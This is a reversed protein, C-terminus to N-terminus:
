ASRNSLDSVSEEVRSKGQLWLQMSNCAGPAGVCAGLAELVSDLPKEPLAIVSTM